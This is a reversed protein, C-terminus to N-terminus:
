SQDKSLSRSSLMKKFSSVFVTSYAQAMKRTRKLIM